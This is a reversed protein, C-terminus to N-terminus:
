KKGKMKLKDGFYNKIWNFAHPTTKKLAEPQFLYWEINNAFDEEPSVRGDDQVFGEQRSVFIGEKRSIPIWNMPFWYSEKDEQSLDLYKQHALEHSLVRTLNLKSDFATDYLVVLGDTSSAPNPFDKSKAARYIEHVNESWLIDPVEGLADLVRETESATFSKFKETKHPWIQPTGAKLKPQWFEYGSPNSQCHAKVFSASVFVGDGRIYARRGHAKVWHHGPLCKTAKSKETAFAFNGISFCFGVLILLLRAFLRFNSLQM